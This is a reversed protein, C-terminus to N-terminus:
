NVVWLSWQTTSAYVVSESWGAYGVVATKLPNGGNVGLGFASGATGYNLGGTNTTSEDLISGVRIRGGSSGAGGGYHGEHKLDMGYMYIETGMTATIGADAGAVTRYDQNMGYHPTSRNGSDNWSRNQAAHMSTAATALKFTVPYNTAGLKFYFESLPVTSYGAYKSAVNNTLDFDSANQTSTNEWLADDPLFGNGGGGKMVCVMAKGAHFMVPARFASQGAPKIWYVGDQAGPNATKIATASIAATAESTGISSGINYQKQYQEYNNLVQEATLATDYIKVVPINAAITYNNDGHFRGIWLRNSGLTTTDRYAATGILTGDIYLKANSSPDNTIVLHHYGSDPYFSNTFANNGSDGVNWAIINSTFFINPGSSYGESDISLPIKGNYNSSQIVMEWTTTTGLSLSTNIYDDTGDFIMQANSNFSTNAVSITARGTLDKLSQTASRSGAVFQTARSKQEVQINAVDIKMNGTSPFWYSILYNHTPTFTFSCKVWEGLAGTFANLFYGNAGAPGGYNYHQFAIYQGVANSSAARVFFSTTVPQGITVYADAGYAM